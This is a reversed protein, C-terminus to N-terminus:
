APYSPDSGWQTFSMPSLMKYELVSPFCVKKHSVYASHKLLPSSHVIVHYVYVWFADRENCLYVGGPSYIYVLCACYHRWDNGVSKVNERIHNLKFLTSVNLGPCCELPWGSPKIKLCVHAPNWLAFLHDWCPLEHNSQSHIKRCRPWPLTM